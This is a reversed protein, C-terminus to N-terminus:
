AIVGDTPRAAETFDPPLVVLESNQNGNGDDVTKGKPDVIWQEGNLVFKYQVRGYPLKVSTTWTRGDQGLTMPQANKDWNNFTGALNVSKVPVDAYYSFVHNVTQLAALALIM